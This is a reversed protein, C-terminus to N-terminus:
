GGGIAHVIEVKDGEKLTYIEFQSRPVVKQNVELALKKQHLELQQLLQELKTNDEVQMPKGNVEINM